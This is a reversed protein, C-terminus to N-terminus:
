AKGRESVQISYDDDGFRWNFAPFAAELKDALDGVCHPCDNDATSAVAAVLKADDLTM